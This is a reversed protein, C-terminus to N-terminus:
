RRHVKTKERNKHRKSGSDRAKASRDIEPRKTPPSHDSKSKETSSEKKRTKRERKSETPVRLLGEELIRSDSLRRIECPDSRVRRTVSSRSIASSSRQEKERRTGQDEQARFTGRLRPRTETKISRAVKRDDHNESSLVDPCSSTRKVKGQDEQARSTGRHPPITENKMSRDVKGKPRTDSLVNPCSNTRKVWRMSDRISTAKPDFSEEIWQLLKDSEKSTKRSTESEKQKTRRRTPHKKARHQSQTEKETAASTEASTHQMDDVVWDPAISLWDVDAISISKAAHEKSHQSKKKLDESRSRRVKRTPSDKRKPKKTASKARGKDQSRSEIDCFQNAQGKM